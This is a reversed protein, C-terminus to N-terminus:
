AFIYGYVVCYYKIRKSLSMKLYGTTIEQKAIEKSFIM